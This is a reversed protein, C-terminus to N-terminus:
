ADGKDHADLMSDAWESLTKGVLGGRQVALAELNIAAKNGSPATIHLWVGDRDVTVPLSTPGAQQPAALAARDAIVAARAYDRMQDDDYGAFSTTYAECYMEAERALVYNSEPLPPLEIEDNM